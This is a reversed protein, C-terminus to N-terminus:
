YGEKRMENRFDEWSQLKLKGEKYLKMDKCTQDFDALIEAKSQSADEEAKKSILKKIYKVVKKMSKEDDAIYSLNRLLEANLEMTTM